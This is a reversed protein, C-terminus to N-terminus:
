CYNNFLMGSYISTTYPSTRESVPTSPDPYAVLKKDVYRMPNLVINELRSDLAKLFTGDSRFVYEADGEIAAKEAKASDLTLYGEEDAVIGVASLSSYHSAVLHSLGRLLFASSRNESVADKGAKVLHNYSVTFEELAEYVASRDAIPRVTVPTETVSHLTFQMTDSFLVTNETAEYSVGNVTYHANQALSSERNLGFTEVIGQEAGEPMSTDEISFSSKGFTGTQNASLEMRSIHLEKNLSVQATLGIGTKNIFDSLKSQLDFAKSGAAVNFRFSYSDYGLSVTFSYSGETLPAEDTSLLTGVNRQGKALSSVEIEYSADKEFEGLDMRHLLAADVTDPASSLLGATHLLPTDQLRHSVDKLLLASEKISLAAAQKSESLDIKYLPESASMKVINKYIDRLERRKHTSYHPTRSVYDQVYYNYVNLM